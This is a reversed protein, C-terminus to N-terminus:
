AAGTVLVDGDTAGSKELALVALMATFGATGIAAARKPSIAEPLAILWDGNVRARQSLGGNHTEGIGWGNLVVLDGPTWRPDDSRSVTGVLDIGPILPNIKAVGPRGGLALGDKFNLSSYEVDVTVDGDGLAEDELDEVLDVTPRPSAADLAQSVRLARFM